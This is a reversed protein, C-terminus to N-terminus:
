FSVYLCVFTQLWRQWQALFVPRSDNCRLEAKWNVLILLTLSELSTLSVLSTLSLIVIIKPRRLFWASHSKIKTWTMLTSGYTPLVIFVPETTVSLPFIDITRNTVAVTHPQQKYDVLKEGIGYSVNEGSVIGCGRAYKKTVEQWFHFLAFNRTVSECAISM